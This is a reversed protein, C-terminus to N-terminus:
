RSTTARAVAPGDLRAPDRRRPLQRRAAHERDARLRRPDDPRLGGRLRPDGRPQAARRGLGHAARALPRLQELGDLKAMLRYETPAQCLVTTGLDGILRFREVPDFGGEHLVVASGCSWPGLLVNWISKAWGPAPRAGSSTTRSRTSGASPRRRKAWRTATRTCSARRTRRRAPRTSSSRPTAPPRTPPRRTRSTSRRGRRPLRGGATGGDGRGRRPLGRRRRAADRRLAARPLRSGEGRLMESCPIAVAGAKLAALM